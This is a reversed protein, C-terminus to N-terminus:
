RMSAGAASPYNGAGLVRANDARLRDVPHGGSRCASRQQRCGRGQRAREWHEPPRPGGSRTSCLGGCIASPLIPLDVPAKVTRRTGPASILPRDAAPGVTSLTPAQGAPVHSVHCRSRAMFPLFWHSSSGAPWSSADFLRASLQVTNVTRRPSGGATGACPGSRSSGRGRCRRSRGPQCGELRSSVVSVQHGHAEAPQAASARRGAHYVLGQRCARSSRCRRRIRRSSSSPNSTRSV